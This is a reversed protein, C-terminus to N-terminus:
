AAQGRQVRRRMAWEQVQSPDFRVLNGFKLYPLPDSPDRMARELSASSMCLYAATWRKNKFYTKEIEAM